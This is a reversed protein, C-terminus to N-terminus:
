PLGDTEVVRYAVKGNIEGAEQLQLREGFHEQLYSFATNNMDMFYVDDRKVLAEAPNSIGIHNLYGKYYVQGYTWNGAAINHDVVRQTPLKGISIFYEPISAYWNPWIYVSEEKWTEEYVSDDAGVRAMLINQPKRLEAHAIMQGAGYWLLAFLLISLILGTTKRKKEQLAITILVEDLAFLVPQWVRLPARGRFTFYYLIIFSGAVSLITEARQWWSGSCFINVVALFVTILFMLMMYIDIHLATRCMDGLIDTVEYIKYKNTSGADTIEKFAATNMGETDIFTWDTAAEYDAKSFPAPDLQEWPKMPYDVALTRYYNYDEASKYPETSLFVARSILLVFGTILVPMIYKRLGTEIILTTITKQRQEGVAIEDAALGKQYLIEALVILAFYPIFLCAVAVRLMLGFAILGTGAVVWFVSRKQRMSVILIIIGSFLIAGTQINYNANWIHLGESIFLEGLVVNLIFLWGTITYQSICKESLHELALYFILSFGTGILVHVLLTFIDATSFAKGLGRIILCVLPHLYQCFNSGYYGSTVVAVEWNDGYYYVPYTFLFLIYLVATFLIATGSM